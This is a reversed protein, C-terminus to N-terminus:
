GKRGELREDAAERLRAPLTPSRSVLRLDGGQLLGLLRLSIELPTYPNLVLARKIAYRRIWRSATLIRRQVEPDTPRRAALAVLDRETIKPNQLLIEIVEPEPNHLLRQLIDRDHSRALTKRHGLTLERPPDPPREPTASPDDSFFLRGVAELGQAKAAAYLAALTEYSLVGRTLARAVATLAVDFPPGGAHGRREIVALMAVAEDPETAGIFRVFALEQMEPESLAALRRALRTAKQEWPGDM